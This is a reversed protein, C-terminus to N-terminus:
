DIVLLVVKIILDLVVTILVAYQPSFRYNAVTDRLTPVISLYRLGNVIVAGRGAGAGEM